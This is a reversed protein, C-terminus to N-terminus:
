RGRRSWAQVLARDRLLPIFVGGVVSRAQFGRKLGTTTSYWDSFPVRDATQDLYTLIPDVFTRFDAPTETLTGKRTRGIATRVASVIVAEPM